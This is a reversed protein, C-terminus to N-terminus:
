PVQYLITHLMVALERLFFAFKLLLLMKVAMVNIVTIYYVLLFTV